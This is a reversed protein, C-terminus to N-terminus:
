EENERQEEKKKQEEKEVYYVALDVYNDYNDDIKKGGIINELKRKTEKEISSEIKKKAEENGNKKALNYLRLVDLLNQLEKLKKISKERYENVDLQLDLVDKVKHYSHNEDKDCIYDECVSCYKRAYNEPHNKCRYKLEGIPIKYKEHNYHYVSCDKCLPIKCKTCYDKCNRKQCGPANCRKVNNPDHKILKDIYKTSSIKTIKNKNKCNMTLKGTYSHIELIEPIMNCNMNLCIFDDKPIKEIEDKERGFLRSEKVEAKKKPVINWKCCLLDKISQCVGM